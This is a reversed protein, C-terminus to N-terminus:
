AHLLVQTVKRGALTPSITWGGWPTRYNSFQIQPKGRFKIKVVVDAKPRPNFVHKNDPILEAM